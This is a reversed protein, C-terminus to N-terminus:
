TPPRLNHTDGYRRQGPLLQTLQNAPHAAIRTLVDKLYAFPEVAHRQCTAILSFLIAATRGGADSGAFLWNKRGIAIRRLANESANNDIALEGDLLYVCLATWQSFAYTIAEGMPSRPLVPGGKVAQLGTLWQRFQM